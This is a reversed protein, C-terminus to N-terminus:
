CEEEQIKQFDHNGFLIKQAGTAAFYLMSVAGIAAFVMVINGSSGIVNYEHMVSGHHGGVDKEAAYTCWGEYCLGGEPCLGGVCAVPMPMEGVRSEQQAHKSHSSSGSNSTAIRDPGGCQQKESTRKVCCCEYGPTGDDHAKPKFPDTSWPCAYDDTWGCGESECYSNCERARVEPALGGRTPCDMKGRKKEL